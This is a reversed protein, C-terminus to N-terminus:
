EIRIIAYLNDGTKRAQLRMGKRKLRTVITNVTNGPVDVIMQGPMLKDYESYISPRETKPLNVSSSEVIKPKHEAENDRSSFASQPPRRTTSTNMFLGKQLQKIHNYLM